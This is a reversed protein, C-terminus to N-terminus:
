SRLCSVAGQLEHTYTYRVKIARACLWQQLPFIVIRKQTNNLQIENNVLQVVIFSVKTKMYLARYKTAKLWTEVCIKVFAGWYSIERFDTWDSGRQYILVSM